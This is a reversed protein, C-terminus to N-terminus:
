RTDGTACFFTRPKRGIRDLLRLAEETLLKINDQCRQYFQGKNVSQQPISYSDLRNYSAGMFALWIRIGALCCSVNKISQPVSSYGYTYTVKITHTGKPITVTKLIFKGYPSPGNTLPDNITDLWYDVTDYVGSAIQVATLTAFSETTNGDIDLLNCVTVSQIPYHTAVFTTSYNGIIDKDKTNLWDTYSNNNTFVRATLMELEAEADLIMADVITTSVESSSLGTKQYVDTNLCYKGVSPPSSGQIYIVAIYNANWMANLFTVTSAAANHTVTYDVNLVLNLGNVFVMFGGAQTLQVNGLTLVRNPLGDTLSCDSGRKNETAISM